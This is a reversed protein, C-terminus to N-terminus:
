PVEYLKEERFYDDFGVLEQLDTFEKLMPKVKSVDGARLVVLAEEMSKVASSLLTLPYAAIKYGLEELRAPELIPTAGMELCNCMTWGDIGDCLRQMAEVSDPAEVFSVEAGMKHFENARKIAEDIGIAKAADTRAVIVLDSAHADRADIAARMRMMAEDYSVVGKVKTHGCRKPSIQDEIMIGAAGASHLGQITRKVNLANGYGTDGDCIVPINNTETLYQLHRRVEEFSMLGTDPLGHVAASSFGSMFTFNFGAREILRASLADFCCPMLQIGPRALTERLKNGPTTCCRVQRRVGHSSGVGGVFGVSM